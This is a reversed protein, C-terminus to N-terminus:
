KEIKKKYYGKLSYRAVALVQLDNLIMVKVVYTM